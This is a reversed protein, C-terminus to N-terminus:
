PKRGPIVDVLRTVPEVKGWPCNPFSVTVKAADLGTRVGPPVPPRTETEHGYRRSKLEYRVVKPPDALNLPAFEFEAVPGVNEPLKEAKPDTYEVEYSVTSGPGVGPTVFTVAFAAFWTQEPPFLALPPVAVLRDSGFHLIPASRPDAAPQYRATYKSRGNRKVEVPSFHFLGQYGYSAQNLEVRYRDGPHPDSLEGLDV